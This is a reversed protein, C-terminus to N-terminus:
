TEYIFMPLLGFPIFEAVKARLSDSKIPNLLRNFAGIESGNEAGRRLAEPATESLQAYGPDGFRQSTFWHNSDAFPIPPHPYSRPIRSGIPAVSFRFCGNQTDTVNAHQTILTESAYLRHVEIGGLITTRDIQTRNLPQEIAPVTPDTSQIISDCIILETVDGLQEPDSRDIQIPGTISSNIILQDIRAQVLIGVPDIPNEFIDEDGGPDFTCHNITVCEYDGRLVLYQGPGSAGFWLGDLTVFSEQFQSTDLEWNEGLRIYPREQNRAQIRLNQIEDKNAIGLYTRSNEIQLVGDELIDGDLITNGTSKLQDPETEEVSQRGYGGAGISGSFGYYYNVIPHIELPDTLMSFLGNEPDIIMQKETPGPRTGLALNGAIIRSREIGGLSGGADVSIANPLLVAKGCDERLAAELLPVYIALSLLEPHHPLSRISEELRFESRFHQGALQRLEQAALEGLTHENRLTEIMAQSIQYATHGLLRCRIPGPLEWEQAAQWNDWNEPRNRPMFLPISRGSPDFSFLSGNYDPHGPWPFAHSERIPFAKLRYLHFALKHIGYLGDKGRPQRFDPTHHYEDFPGDVLESIRPSRLNATGGAPTNSFVAGRLSQPDLAHRTRALRRFSERVTGDWDTISSILQELVRLTGSRRRYAITNAVDARRGRENLASVLRTGLLDAIYPVAWDSSWDIFQDEWLRDQSRRLIAAQEAIIEVISRLVGPNEALGDETRYFAPIMEWIKETFYREFQDDAARRTFDTETM